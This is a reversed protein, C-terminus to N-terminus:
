APVTGARREAVVAGVRAHREEVDAADAPVPSRLLAGALTADAQSEVSGLHVSEVHRALTALDDLLRIVVAPNGAGAQRLMDYAAKVQRDFPVTREVLRVTGDRGLLGGTETPMSGLRCLAATLWDICTMGTFTDNIAPSLARLGIEVVQYLAFEVDQVRTRNAGIEVAEAVVSTAARVASPPSVRAIPEGAVIFQGPRRLMELRFDEREAVGLLRDLDLAQLFGARGALLDVGEARIAARCSEVAPGDDTRGVRRRDLDLETVTRDLDAVVAAVVQPAQITTAVRHVYLVIVFFCALALLVSTAYSVEPVGEPGAGTRISALTLTCVVVGGLLTGLSFQTVPDEIFRRILRPGLQSTALSFTLVSTSFVLALATALAALLGSLVLAADAPSRAVLFEPVITIGGPDEVLRDLRRSVAFLGVAVAACAFPIVWLNPGVRYGLEWFWVGLRSRRFRSGADARITVARDTVRLTQGM